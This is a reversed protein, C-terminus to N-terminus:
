SGNRSVGYPRGKHDGARGKHDGARGKHDGAVSHGGDLAVPRSM